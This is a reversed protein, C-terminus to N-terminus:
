LWKTKNEKETKDEQSLKDMQQLGKILNYLGAGLGLIGGLAVFLPSTKLYNDLKYGGYVFLVMFFALQIGLTSYAFISKTTNKNNL